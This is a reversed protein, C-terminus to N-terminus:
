KAKQLAPPAAAGIAGVGGAAGLLAIWLEDNVSIIGSLDLVALLAGLAVLAVTPWAVKPAIGVTEVAENKKVSLDM